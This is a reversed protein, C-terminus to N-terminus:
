DEYYIDVYSNAMWGPNRGLGEMSARTYAPMPINDINLLKGLSAEAKRVASWWRVQKGYIIYAEIKVGSNRKLKGRRALEQWICEAKEPM